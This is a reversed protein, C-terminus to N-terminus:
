LPRGVAEAVALINAYDRFRRIENNVVTLVVINPLVFPGTTSSNGYVNQEVVVTNPDSTAWASFTEYREYKLPSSQWSAAMFAVIANRGVLSSPIGPRTFPFEHVAKVSYLLRMEDVSQAIAAARFRDLVEGPEGLIQVLM